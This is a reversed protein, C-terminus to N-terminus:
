SDSTPKPADEPERGGGNCIDVDYAGRTLVQGVGDMDLLQIRLEPESRVQDLEHVVPFTSLHPQITHRYGPPPLGITGPGLM